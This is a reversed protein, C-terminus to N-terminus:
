SVEMIRPFASEKGKRAPIALLQSKANEGTKEGQGEELMRMAWKNYKFSEFVGKQFDRFPVRDFPVWLLLASLCMRQVYLVCLQVSLLASSVQLGTFASLTMSLASFVGFNGSFLEYLCYTAYLYLAVPLIYLLWAISEIRDISATYRQYADLILAEVGEEFSHDKLSRISLPKRKLKLSLWRIGDHVIRISYYIVLFELCVNIHSLPLGDLRRCIRYFLSQTFRYFSEEEAIEKKLAEVTATLQAIELYLLAKNHQATRSETIPLVENSAPLKSIGQTPINRKPQMQGCGIGHLACLQPSYPVANQPMDESLEDSHNDDFSKSRKQPIRDGKAGDDQCFLTIGMFFLQFAAKM